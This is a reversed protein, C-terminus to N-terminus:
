SPMAFVPSKPAVGGVKKSAVLRDSLALALLGVVCARTQQERKGQERALSPKQSRPCGPALPMDADVVWDAFSRLEVRIFMYSSQLQLCFPSQSKASGVGAIAGGPGLNMVALDQRDYLRHSPWCRGDRYGDAAPEVGFSLLVAQPLSVVKIRRWYEWRALCGRKAFFGPVVEIVDTSPVQPPVKQPGETVM